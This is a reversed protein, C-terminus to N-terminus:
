NANIHVEAQDDKGEECPFNHIELDPRWELYSVRKLPEKYNAPDELTQLLELKKGGEVKRYDEILKADESVPWGGNFFEGKIKVTEVHLTDGIWRGISYGEWSPLAGAVDGGGMHIVRPYNDGNIETGMVVFKPHQVILLAGLGGGLRLFVNYPYCNLDHQQDLARDFKAAAAKGADTFPPAARPAGGGTPNGNNAKVVADVRASLEALTPIHMKRPDGASAPAWNTSGAGMPVGSSHIKFPIMWVGTLDPHAAARVAPPKAAPQGLAASGTLCGAFVAAAALAVTGGARRM